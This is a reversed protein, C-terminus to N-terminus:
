LGVKWFAWALRHWGRASLRRVRMSYRTDIEIRADTSWAKV